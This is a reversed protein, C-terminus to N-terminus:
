DAEAGTARSVPLDPQPPPTEGPRVGIPAWRLQEGAAALGIYVGPNSAGLADVDGPDLHGRLDLSRALAQANGSVTRDVRDVLFSRM